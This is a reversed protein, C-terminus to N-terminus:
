PFITKFTSTRTSPQKASPQHVSPQKPSLLLARCPDKYTEPKPAAIIWGEHSHHTNTDPQGGQGTEHKIDYSIKTTGVIVRDHRKNLIMKEARAGKGNSYDQLNYIKGQSDVSLLRVNNESLTNNLASIPSMNIMVSMFDTKNSLVIDSIAYHIDTDHYYRQWITDGNDRDIMMLWGASGDKDVSLIQGGVIIQRDLYNTATLIRAGAGRSYSNQWIIDGEQAIKLVWGSAKGRANKIHGTAVYANDHTPAIHLLQNDLGTKFARRNLIGGKLSLRYFLSHHSQTKRNLASGVIILSKGNQAKTISASEIDHGVEQIPKTKQLTGNSGFFLVLMDKYRRNELKRSAIVIAGKNHPIMDHITDLGSIDHYKQWVMRGRLDIEGIIFQKKPSPTGTNEQDNPQRIGAIMTNSNDLAAVSLFEENFEKEGLVGGWVTFSGIKPKRLKVLTEYAPQCTQAWSITISITLVFLAIIINKTTKRM